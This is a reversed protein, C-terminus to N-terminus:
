DNNPNNINEIKRLRLEIEALKRIICVTTADDYGITTDKQMVFEVLRHFSSQLEDAVDNVEEKFAKTTEM